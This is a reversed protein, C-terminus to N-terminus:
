HIAQYSSLHFGPTEIRVSVEPKNNVSKPTFKDATSSRYPLKGFKPCITVFKVLRFIITLQRMPHSVIIKYDCCIRKYSGSGHGHFNKVVADGAASADGFAGGFRDAFAITYQVDDVLFGANLALAM